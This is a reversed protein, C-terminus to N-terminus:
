LGSVIGVSRTQLDETLGAVRVTVRRVSDGDSGRDRGGLSSGVIRAAGKTDM